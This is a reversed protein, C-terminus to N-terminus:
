RRDASALNYHGVQPWWIIWCRASALRRAQIGYAGATHCARIMSCVRELPPAISETNYECHCAMSKPPSRSTRSWLLVGAWARLDRVLPVNLIRFCAKGKNDGASISSTMSGCVLDRSCVVQPKLSEESTSSLTM